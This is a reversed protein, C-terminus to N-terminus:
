SNHPLPMKVTKILKKLKKKSMDIMFLLNKSTIRWIRLKRKTKSKM